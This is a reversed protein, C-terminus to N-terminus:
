KSCCVNTFSYGSSVNGSYKFESINTKERNLPLSKVESKVPTVPSTAANRRRRAQNDAKNVEVPTSSVSSENGEPNAIPSRNQTINTSASQTTSVSTATTQKTSSSSTSSSEVVPSSSSAAQTTSVSTANTQKTSPSSSTSSSETAHSSSLTTSTSEGINPLGSSTTTNPAASSLAPTQSTDHGSSSSVATLTALLHAPENDINLNLFDKGYKDIIIRSILLCFLVSQVLPVNITFHMIIHTFLRLDSESLIQIKLMKVTM